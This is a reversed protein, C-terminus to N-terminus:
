EGDEREDGDRLRRILDEPLPDDPKAKLIGRAAAFGGRSQNEDGPDVNVHVRIPSPDYACTSGPGIIGLERLEAVVESVPLPQLAHAKLLWEADALRRRTEAHAVREAELDRQMQEFAVDRVTQYALHHTGVPTTDHVERQTAPGGCTPCPVIRPTDDTM